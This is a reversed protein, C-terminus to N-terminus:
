VRALQCLLVRPSTSHHDLIQLQYYDDNLTCPVYREGGHALIMYLYLFAITAAKAKPQGEMSPTLARNTIADVLKEDLGEPHENGMDVPTVADWPLDDLNWERSFNDIDTFCV